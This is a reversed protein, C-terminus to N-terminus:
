AKKGVEDEWADVCMHGIIDFYGDLSNVMAEYFKSDQIDHIIEEDEYGKTFLAQQIYAELIKEIEKDM